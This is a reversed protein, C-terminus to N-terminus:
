LSNVVARFVETVVQPTVELKVPVPGDSRITGILEDLHLLTIYGQVVDMVGEENEQLFKLREAMKENEAKAKYNGRGSGGAPIKGKLEKLTQIAEDSTSAEQAFFYRKEWGETGEQKDDEYDAKYLEGLRLRLSIIKGDFQKLKEAALLDWETPSKKQGGYNSETKRIRGVTIKKTTDFSDDYGLFKDNADKEVKRVPNSFDFHGILYTFSSTDHVLCVPAKVSVGESFDFTFEDYGHKSEYVTIPM